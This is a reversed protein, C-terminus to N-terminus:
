MDEHCLIINYVNEWTMLFEESTYMEIVVYYQIILSTNASQVIIYKVNNGNTLASQKGLFSSAKFFPWFM